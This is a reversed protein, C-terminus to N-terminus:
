TAEALQGRIEGSPNKKTRVNVYTKGGVVMALESPSAYAHGSAGSSCPSCLHFLAPGYKGRVGEHIYASSAKGSLNAFHLQWDMTYGPSTKVFTATFGGSASEVKHSPKPAEQSSTLKATVHVSQNSKAATAGSALAVAAVAFTGLAVAKLMPKRTIPNM